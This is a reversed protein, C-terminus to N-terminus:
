INQEKQYSHFARFLNLFLGSTSLFFLLVADHLVTNNNKANSTEKKEKETKLM